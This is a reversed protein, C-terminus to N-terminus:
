RYKMAIEVHIKNVEDQRLSLAVQGYLREGNVAKTPM